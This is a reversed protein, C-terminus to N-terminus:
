PANATKAKKNSPSYIAISHSFSTLKIITSATTVDTAWPTINGNNGNRIRLQREMMEIYPPQAMFGFHNQTTIERPKHKHSIGKKRCPLLEFHGPIEYIKINEKFESERLKQEAKQKGWKTGLGEDNHALSVTMWHMTSMTYPVPGLM